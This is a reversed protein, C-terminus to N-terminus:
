GKGNFLPQVSLDPYENFVDENSKPTGDENYFQRMLMLGRAAVEPLMYFNWGLFDFTDTFFSQERRGCCRARKFWEYAEKEYTLIAGGKILKLHKSPGTFSLCMHSNAVYMNHTFSLSADIVNTGGLIYSGKIGTDMTDYFKVRGGAHIIEMPVSPFTRNPLTITQGAVDEYMLSLFIAHSCCDVAVCYPAGTYDCLAQEFDETIKYVGQATTTKTSKM